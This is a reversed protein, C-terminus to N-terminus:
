KNIFKGDKLIVVGYVKSIDAVPFIDLDGIKERKGGDVFLDVDSKDKFKKGVKKFFERLEDKWAEDDDIGHYNGHAYSGFLVINKINNRNVFSIIQSQIDESFDSFYEIKKNM